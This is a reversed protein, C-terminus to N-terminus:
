RNLGTVIQKGQPLVWSRHGIKRILLTLHIAPKLSFRASNGFLNDRQYLARVPWHGKASNVTLYNAKGFRLRRVVLNETLLVAALHDQPGSHRIRARLCEIRHQKALPDGNLGDIRPRIEHVTDDNSIGANRNLEAFSRPDIIDRRVRDNLDTQWNWGTSNRIHGKDYSTTDVDVEVIRVKPENSHEAVWDTSVLSEPHAYTTSM